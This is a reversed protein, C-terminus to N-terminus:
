KKVFKKLSNDNTQLKRIEHIFITIEWTNMKSKEKNSVDWVKICQNAIAQKVDLVFPKVVGADRLRQRNIKKTKPNIFGGQFITDFSYRMPIKDKNYKEEEIVGIFKLLDGRVNFWTFKIEDPLAGEDQYTKNINKICMENIRECAKDVLWKRDQQMSKSDEEWKDDILPVIESIKVTESLEPM